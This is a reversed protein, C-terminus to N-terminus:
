SKGITLTKSLRLLFYYCFHAVVWGCSIVFQEFDWLGGVVFWVFSESTKNGLRTFVNASM